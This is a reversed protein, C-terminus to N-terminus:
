RPRFAGARGEPEREQALAEQVTQRVVSELEEQLRLTVSRTQEQVVQAISERLRQDLVREVRELLRQVLREEAQMQVQAWAAADLAIGPEPESEQEALSPLVAEALPFRASPGTAPSPSSALEPEPVAPGFPAPSAWVELSEPPAAQEPQPPSAPVSDSAPDQVVDTLTPVYRPPAKPQLDM